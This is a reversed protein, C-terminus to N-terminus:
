FLFFIIIEADKDCPQALDTTAMTGLITAMTGKECMNLGILTIQLLMFVM